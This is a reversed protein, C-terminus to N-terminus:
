EGRLIEREAAAIILDLERQTVEDLWDPQHERLIRDQEAHARDLMTQGGERDWIEWGKRDSLDPIWRERVHDVTHRDSLYNGGIGVRQIVEYALTEDDVTLGRAVKRVYGLIENDLILQPVSAGQDCGAIGLGGTVNMGALAGILLSMGKEMGAQADPVKADTLGMQLGVPLGHSHGVQASGVMILTEEPSAFISSGTRPDLILSACNYLVGVGPALAQVVVLGALVEADQQAITGALTIPGTGMSQVMPGITVPQGAEVWVKMTELSNESLILPSTPEFGFLGRPRNRLEQSGGAVVRLLELVYKASRPSQIWSRVPKRTRKLMESFIRIDRVEMPIEMPQVLSGAIDINPLADLVIICQELDALTPERRSKRIPDIIFIEGAISQSIFDSTHTVSVAKTGDRGHFNYGSPALEIATQVANPSFTATRRNLDIQVGELDGVRSLIELSDIRVGVESLIRLATQHIQEVASKSLFNLTPKFNNESVYSM